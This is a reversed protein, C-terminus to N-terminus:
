IGKIAFMASPIGRDQLPIGVDNANHIRPEVEFPMKLHLVINGRRIRMARLAKIKWFDRQKLCGMIRRL